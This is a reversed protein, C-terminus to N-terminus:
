NTYIKPKIWEDEMIWGHQYMYDSLEATIERATRATDESVGHAVNGAGGAAEIVLTLPDTALTPM